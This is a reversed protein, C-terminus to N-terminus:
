RIYTGLKAGPVLGEPYCRMRIARSEAPVRLDLRAFDRFAVDALRGTHEFALERRVADLETYKIHRKWTVGWNFLGQGPGPRYINNEFVLELDKLQSGDPPGDMPGDDARSQRSPSTEQMSKPWHREDDIDFWGWVQADRNYAVLNNRVTLNRNWVPESGGGILPTSRKQERLSLGEKNGILLNREILCDPSSSISIGANAGWDAPSFAFGNGVIVNDHAYLGYSIEYFIGANENDAILCNKVECKENGIDFWIGDGKNETFISNAIVMGRTLAIKNGGAEWGRNFGKTNNNTVTCGTLLLGHARGASFGLQGNHRFTCNRVTIREGSFKAGCANTYEFVCDDLENDDGSIQVAGQQARNAAYRFRIGKIRVHNSKCTWITSNVSAETLVRKDGLDRNSRDQVYLRRADLDVFFTGRSLKQRELVQGLPYGDVFVQECRGILRHYDDSPHTNHENWSIFEHPWATWFVSSDREDRQWDTLREAGTVVVHEATAARITIPEAAMGNKDITVQERYIGGHITVTDGAQLREVAEGISRIQSNTDIGPLIRQCVHWDKGSASACLLVVSLVCFPRINDLLRKKM